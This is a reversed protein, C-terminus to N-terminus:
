PASHKRSSLNELWRGLVASQRDSGLFAEPPVFYMRSNDFGELGFLVKPHTQLIEVLMESDFRRRDYQCMAYCKSNPFFQNLKSEYEVLRESGPEGALAWTMEGTVRLAQYGEELAKETEGQLLAIMKDPNFEGGKLYAEKATVIVLQGKQILAEADVGGTELTVKLQAASQINVIYLIKEGREVGHRIFDIILARHDEDTRYIGCYHDGAHMNALSPLAQQSITM